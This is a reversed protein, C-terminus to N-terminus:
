VRAALATLGAATIKIETKPGEGRREIWGKKLLTQVMRPTIQVPMRQAIKWDGSRLNQLVQRHLTTVAGASVNM